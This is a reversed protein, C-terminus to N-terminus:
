ADPSVVRKVISPWKVGDRGSAACSWDKRAISGYILKKGVAWGESDRRLITLVRRYGYRIRTRVIEHMRQRLALRPDRRSPKRQTARNQRTLSCARRESYGHCTTVYRVVEKM